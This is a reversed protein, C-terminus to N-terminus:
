DETKIEPNFFEVLKFGIGFGIYPQLSKTDKKLGNQFGVAATINVNQIALIGNLGYNLGFEKKGSVANDIASLGAYPGASFSWNRPEVLESQFIRTHGFTRVFTLNANLFESELDRSKTLIRFPLNTASFQWARYPIDLVRHNKWYNPGIVFIFDKSNDNSNVMTNDSKLDDPEKVINWFKIYLTDNDDDKGRKIIFGKLKNYINKSTPTKITQTSTQKILIETSNTMQNAPKGPDNVTLSNAPIKGIVIETPNTSEDVRILSGHTLLKKKFLYGFNYKMEQANISMFMLSLLLGLSFTKM